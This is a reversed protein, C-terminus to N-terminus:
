ILINNAFDLTEKNFSDHLVFERRVRETVTIQPTRLLDMCADIVQTSIEPMREEKCWQQRYERFYDMVASFIVKKTNKDGYYGELIPNGECDFGKLSGHPAEFLAEMLPYFVQVFTRMQYFNMENGCYSNVNITGSDLPLKMYYLGVMKRQMLQELYCQVTGRACFDYICIEKYNDLSLKKLYQQYNDGEKTNSVAAMVAQRSAYFYEARFKKKNGYSLEELYMQYLLYGDRAQFLLLDCGTNEAQRMVWLYLNVWFPAMFTKVFIYIDVVMLNENNQHPFEKLKQLLIEYVYRDQTSVVQKEMKKLCNEISQTRFFNDLEIGEITYVPINTIERRIKTYITKLFMPRAMIVIFDSAKVEKVTLLKHESGTYALDTVGVINYDRLEQLVEWTHKGTGYLCIKDKKRSQFSQQFMHLIYKKEDIM